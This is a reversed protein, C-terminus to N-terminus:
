IGSSKRVYRGVARSRKLSLWTSCRTLPSISIVAKKLTCVGSARYEGADGCKM